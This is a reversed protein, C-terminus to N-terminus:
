RGAIMKALDRLLAARERDSPLNEIHRNLRISFNALDNHWDWGKAIAALAGASLRAPKEGPIERPIEGGLDYRQDLNPRFIHDAPIGLDAIAKALALRAEDEGHVVFLGRRIPQRAAIWKLLEGRDAHGSYVDIKRITARVEIEEGQIRVRKAGEVLLRGLTGPAQYGVILVTSQPRWLNEKLHHRIRGADCMGSASIIIAGSSIRALKRSEEGSEVFRINPGRFPSSGEAFHAPAIDPSLCSMTEGLHREFVETARIALPSDLFIPAKPLKGAAMLAVLDSIIEQSREIAFAPIILNGGEKLAAGVEAALAEQRAADDLDQRDRNGYTSEVVLYDIGHPAEAEEQLASEAPGLDGSFIMKTAQVDSGGTAVDIEISGSGLIHGANWWRARIGPAIDRWGCIELAVLRELTAEADARTYIPTVEAEGKHRRRRNLQEVESEQIAGADPLMFTLLDATGSTTLIPGRYGAKVLKPLQGSHDIHAHTLLVADIKRPDFPFAGYNLEKLTKSGQFLGCDILVRAKPTAILYMSGTVMDAAGHFSLTVSM